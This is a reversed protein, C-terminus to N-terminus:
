TDSWGESVGILLMEFPDKVQCFHRNLNVPGLKLNLFIYLKNRRSTHSVSCLYMGPEWM